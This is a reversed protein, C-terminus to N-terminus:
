GNGNSYTEKNYPRQHTRKTRGDSWGAVGLRALWYLMAFTIAVMMARESM